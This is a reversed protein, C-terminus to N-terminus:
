IHIALIPGINAKQPRETCGGEAERCNDLHGEWETRQNKGTGPETQSQFRACGFRRALDGGIRGAPCRFKKMYVGTRPLFQGDGRCGCKRSFFFTSADDRLLLPQVHRQQLQVRRAGSVRLDEVALDALAGGRSISAELPGATARTSASFRPAPWNTPHSARPDSQDKKPLPAEPSPPSEAPVRGHSKPNPIRIRRRERGSEGCGGELWSEWLRM